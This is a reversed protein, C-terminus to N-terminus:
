LVLIKVVVRTETPFSACSVANDAEFARQQEPSAPDGPEDDLWAGLESLTHRALAQGLPSAALGLLALVAM